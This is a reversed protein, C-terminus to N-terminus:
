ARLHFDARRCYRYPGRSFSEVADAHRIVAARLDGHSGSFGVDVRRSAAFSQAGAFGHQHLTSGRVRFKLHHTRDLLVLEVAPVAVAIM